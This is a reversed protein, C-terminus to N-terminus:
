PKYSILMKEVMQNNQLIILSYIGAPQGKFNFTEYGNVTEKELIVRGVTNMIKVVTNPALGSITVENIVPNPYIQVNSNCHLNGTIIHSLTSQGDIDIAKLRFYHKAEILTKFAYHYDSNSGTAKLTAIPAFIRSDSSHLVEFHNTETEIGTRWNLLAECDNVALTFDVLTVPLPVTTRWDRESSPSDGPYSTPTTNNNPSYAVLDADWGDPLGDSDVDAIGGSLETGDITGNGNTDWGEVIDNILDGDTDGDRFDPSGDGDTNVPQIGTTTIEYVDALGNNDADSLTPVIYGTTTQAEINDVIGDNEADIDLYDPKGLGDTNQLSLVALADVTDSWGNNDTDTGDAYGDTNTDPLGAELV